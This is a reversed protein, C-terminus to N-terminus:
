EGGESIPKGEQVRHADKPFGNEQFWAVVQEKPVVMPETWCTLCQNCYQWGEYKEITLEILNRNKCNPCNHLIGFDIEFMTIM